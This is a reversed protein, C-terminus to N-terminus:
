LCVSFSRSQGTDTSVQHTTPLRRGTCLVWVPVYSSTVSALDEGGEEVSSSDVNQMFAKYMKWEDKIKKINNM